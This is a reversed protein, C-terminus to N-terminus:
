FHRATNTHRVQLSCRSLWVYRAETEKRRGEDLERLKAKQEARRAKEKEREAKLEAATLQSPSTPGGANLASSSPSPSPKESNPSSVHLGGTYAPTAGPGAGAATTPSGAAAFPSTPRGPAAADHSRRPSTTGPAAGTTPSTTSAGSVGSPTRAGSPSSLGAAEMEAREEDTMMVDARSTMEKMLSIEGIQTTLQLPDSFAASCLPLYVCM